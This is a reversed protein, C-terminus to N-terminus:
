STENLGVAAGPGILACGSMLPFVLPLFAPEPAVRALLLGVLPYVICLFVVDARYAGLDDFGGAIAEGIDRLGIRRITVPTEAARRGWYTEPTDTVPLHLTGLRESIWAPPTRIVM